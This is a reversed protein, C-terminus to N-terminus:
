QTTSTENIEFFCNTNAASLNVEISDGTNLKYSTSDVVVDGASLTFSYAVVSSAPNVRNVTFTINYASPNNFRITSISAFYGPPCTYLVTVGAPLTDQYIISKFPLQPM